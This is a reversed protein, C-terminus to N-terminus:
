GAFYRTALLSLIVAINRVFFAIGLLVNNFLAPAASERGNSSAMIGAAVAHAWVAAFGTRLSPNTNMGM